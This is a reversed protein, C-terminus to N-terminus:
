SLIWLFCKFPAKPKVPYKYRAKKNMSPIQCSTYFPYPHIKIEIDKWVNESDGAMLSRISRHGLKNRLLELAVKKRPAIKNLKSIQKIKGLFAHKRQASHPM